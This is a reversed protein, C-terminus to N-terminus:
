IRERDALNLDCRSDELGSQSELNTRPSMLLGEGIEENSFGEAAPRVSRGIKAPILASGSTTRYGSLVNVRCCLASTMM